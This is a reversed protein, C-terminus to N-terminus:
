KKRQTFIDMGLCTGEGSDPTIWVVDNSDIDNKAVTRVSFVM